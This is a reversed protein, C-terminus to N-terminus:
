WKKEQNEKNNNENNNEGNLIDNNKIDNESRLNKNSCNLENNNIEKNKIKINNNIVKEMVTIEKFNIIDIMGNEIENMDKNKKLSLPLNYKWNYEDKGDEEEINRLDNNDNKNDKDIM